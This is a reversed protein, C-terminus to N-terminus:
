LGYGVPAPAPEEEQENMEEERRSMEGTGARGEFLRLRQRAAGSVEAARVRGRGYAAAGTLPRSGPAPVVGAVSDIEGAMISRRARSRCGPSRVWASWLPVARPRCPKRWNRLTLLVLAVHRRCRLGPM